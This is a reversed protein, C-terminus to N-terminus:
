NECLRLPCVSRECGTDLLAPVNRGKVDIDIYTKFRGIESAEQVNNVNPTDPNPGTGPVPCQAQWHGRGLCRACVDAPLRNGSARQGGRRGRSARYYPNSSTSQQQPWSPATNGINPGQAGM